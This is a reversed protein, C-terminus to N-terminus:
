TDNHVTHMHKFDIIAVKREIIFSSGGEALCGKTEISNSLVGATRSLREATPVLYGQSM